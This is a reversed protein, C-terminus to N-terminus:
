ETVGTKWKFIEAWNFFIQLSVYIFDDVSREERNNGVLKEYGVTLTPFISHRGIFGLLLGSPIVGLNLEFEGGLYAKGSEHVGGRFYLGLWSYGAGVRAGGSFRNLPGTGLRVEADATLSLSLTKIFLYKFPYIDIGIPTLTSRFGRNKDRSNGGGVGFGSHLSFYDNSLGSRFKLQSLKPNKSIIEKASPSEKALSYLNSQAFPDGTEALKELLALATKNKSSYYLTYLFYPLSAKNDENKIKPIQCNKLVERLFTKSSHDLYKRSLFFVTTFIVTQNEVVVSKLYDLTQPNGQRILNNLAGENIDTWFVQDILKKHKELENTNPSALPLNPKAPDLILDPM